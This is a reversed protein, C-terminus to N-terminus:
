AFLPKCILSLSCFVFKTMHLDTNPRLNQLILQGLDDSHLCLTLPYRVPVLLRFSTVSGEDVHKFIVGKKLTESRVLVAAMKNMKVWM